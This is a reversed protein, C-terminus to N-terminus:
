MQASRAAMRGEVEKITMWNLIASKIWASKKKWILSTIFMFWCVSSCLVHVYYLYMFNTNPISQTCPSNCIMQEIWIANHILYLYLLSATVKVCSVSCSVHCGVCHDGMTSVNHISRCLQWIDEGYLFNSSRLLLMSIVCSWCASSVLCMYKRM